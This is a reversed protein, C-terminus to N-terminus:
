PRVRLGLERALVTYSRIQEQVFDELAPGTLAFPYVGHRERIAALGPANLATAFLSAWHQYTADSIHRGVYLGRVTPWVLNVGQERATPLHSQAGPLRQAALVALVRMPAGAGIAQVVEALDGCFVTVHRGALAGMADGGGEFSVFRMSKHDKGAAKVILAAKIWDQSGVTGGAGFMVSSLDKKRAADLAGLSRIPSDKHVVIVGYDIAMAALWRVDAASHPGFKGQALNLLSGSSFAVLADPNALKGTAMRDFALAGIGGPLYSIDLRRAAPGAKDLLAAAMKCTLDFGGGAKAPVLCALPDPPKAASAAFATGGPALTAALWAVARKLAHRRQMDPM